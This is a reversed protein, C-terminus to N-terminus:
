TDEVFFSHVVRFPGSRKLLVLVVRGFAFMSVDHVHEEEEEVAEELFTTAM